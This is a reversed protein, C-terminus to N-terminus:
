FTEWNLFLVLISIFLYLQDEFRYKNKRLTRTTPTHYWTSTFLCLRSRSLTTYKVDHLADMNFKRELRREGTSSKM